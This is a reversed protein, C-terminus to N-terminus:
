VGIVEVKFKLEEAGARNEALCRYDGADKAGASLVTLYTGDTQMTDSRSENM